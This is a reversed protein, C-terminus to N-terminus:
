EEKRKLGLRRAIKKGRATNIVDPHNIFNLLRDYQTTNPNELAFAIYEKQSKFRDKFKDDTLYHGAHASEHNITTIIDNILQEEDQGRNIKQPNIEIKPPLKREKDWYFTGQLDSNTNFDINVKLIDFWM